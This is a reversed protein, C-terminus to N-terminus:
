DKFKFDDFWYEGDYNFHIVINGIDSRHIYQYKTWGLWRLDTISFLSKYEGGFPNSMCEQMALQEYLNQPETRGTSGYGAIPVTCRNAATPIIEEDIGVSVAIEIAEESENVTIDNGFLEIYEDYVIVDEASVCVMSLCMFLVAMVLSFIRNKKKM